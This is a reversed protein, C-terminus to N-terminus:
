LNCMVLYSAGVFVSVFLLPRHEPNNRDLQFVMALALILVVPSVIM